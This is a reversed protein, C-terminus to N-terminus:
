NKKEKQEQDERNKWLSTLVGITGNEETELKYVGIISLLSGLSLLFMARGHNKGYVRAPIYDIICSQFGVYLHGLLITSLLGDAVTSVSGGTALPLTVLPIMSVALFREFDWHYSGHTKHPEPAIFPDNPTGEVGGPKQPLTSLFPITLSRKSTTHFARNLSTRFITRPLM